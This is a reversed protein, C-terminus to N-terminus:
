PTDGVLGALDGYARWGIAAIELRRERATALDRRALFVRTQETKGAKWSQVSADVVAQAAPVAITDITSIAKRAVDYAVFFGKARAMIAAKTIEYNGKARDADAEARAIESQNKRLVPFTWSLGGGLRLDGMDTRGASLIFNVPVYKDAEWKEKAAGFYTAELSYQKLAPSNDVLHKSLADSDKFRLAPLEVSLDGKPDDLNPEGIAIALRAKALAYALDAEAKMQLWRGVEGEAQAKDVITADKADFRGNVYAAEERAIKEGETAHLKRAAAVLIEGYAAVAEGVANSQAAAKATTKWAVLADVEALRKGRQGSLEVPLWLNAQVAALGSTEKTRDVFVELYPNTLPPLGAGYRTAGAVRIDAAAILSAPGKTRSREIAEKLTPFAHATASAALSAVVIVVSTQLHRRANM